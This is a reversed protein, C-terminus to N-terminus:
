RGELRYFLEAMQSPTVNNTSELWWTLVQLMAGALFQAAFEVPINTPTPTLGNTIDQQIIQAMYQAFRQTLRIHGRESLMVRLLPKHQASYDFVRALKERHRAETGAVLAEHIKGNLADFHDQLIAWIIDDKDKFHIYFTARALDLQDTIDQITLAEYGKEVLLESATEKLAQRTRQKRREYRSAEGKDM